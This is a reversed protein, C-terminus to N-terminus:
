RWTAVLQRALDKAARNGRDTLLGVLSWWCVEEDDLGEECAWLWKTMQWMPDICWSVPSCWTMWCWHFKHFAEEEEEEDQDLSAGPVGATAHSSAAQPPISVVSRIAPTRLVETALM